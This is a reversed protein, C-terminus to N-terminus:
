LPKALGILDRMRYLEDHLIVEEGAPTDIKIAAKPESASPERWVEPDQQAVYVLISAARQVRAVSTALLDDTFACPDVWGGEDNGKLAASVWKEVAEAEYECVTRNIRPSAHCHM